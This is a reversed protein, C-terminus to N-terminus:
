RPYIARQEAISRTWPDAISYSYSLVGDRIKSIRRYDTALIYGGTHVAMIEFIVTMCTTKKRGHFSTIFAVNGCFCPM